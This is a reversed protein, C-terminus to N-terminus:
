DPNRAMADGNEKNSQPTRKKFAVRGLRGEQLSPLGSM